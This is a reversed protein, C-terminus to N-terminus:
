LELKVVDLDLADLDVGVKMWIETHAKKQIQNWIRHKIEWWPISCILNKEDIDDIIQDQIHLKIIEYQSYLRM